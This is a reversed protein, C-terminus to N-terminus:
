SGGPGSRSLSTSATGPSRNSSRFARSSRAALRRMRGSGLAAAIRGANTVAEQLAVIDPDAAQIAEIVKALDVGEGGEEINFVM